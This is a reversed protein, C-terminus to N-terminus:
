EEIIIEKKSNIRVLCYPTTFASTTRAGPEPQTTKITVRINRDTEVMKEIGIAYGGTRKEGMNLLLFNATRIDGAKVKKRLAPDGLIMGIEKEETITEYFQFKAGGYANQDLIEYLPKSSGEKSANCSAAFIALLILLPHKSKM